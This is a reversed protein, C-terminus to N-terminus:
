NTDCVQFEELQALIPSHVNDQFWTNIDTDRYVPSNKTKMYKFEFIEQDGKVVVFEGCFSANVKVAVEKKLINKMRRSFLNKTDELFAAPEKHQLNIVAGTRIRSNFASELEVWKVRDSPKPNRSGLGSGVVTRLSKLMTRFGKMLTICSTIRQKEGITKASKLATNMSHIQRGCVKIAPEIDESTDTNIAIVRARMEEVIRSFM